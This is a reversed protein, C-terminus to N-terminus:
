QSSPFPAIPPIPALRFAETQSLEYRLQSASRSPDDRSNIRVTRTGETRLRATATHRRATGEGGWKGPVLRVKRTLSLFTSTQTRGKNTSRQSSLQFQWYVRGNESIRRSQAGPNRQAEARESRYIRILSKEISGLEKSDGLGFGGLFGYQLRYQPVSVAGWDM